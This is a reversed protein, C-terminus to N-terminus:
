PAVPHLIADAPCTAAGGPLLCEIPITPLPCAPRGCSLVAREEQLRVAICEDCLGDCAEAVPAYRFLLRGCRCCHVTM